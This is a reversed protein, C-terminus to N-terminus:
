GFWEVNGAPSATSPTPPDPLAAPPTVLTNRVIEILAEQSFPKQLFPYKQGTMDQKGLSDDNSSSMVVVRLDPRVARLRAVLERGHVRPYPNRDGALQFGPPPLVLDVLALHIPEPHETCIQLAESSGPSELVQYGARQLHTRCLLLIAPDDDVLLITTPHPGASSPTPITTQIM